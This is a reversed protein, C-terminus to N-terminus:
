CCCCCHQKSVTEKKDSGFLSVLLMYSSRSNPLFEHSMIGSLQIYYGPGPFDSHINISYLYVVRFQHTKSHNKNTRALSFIESYELSLNVKNLLYDPKKNTQKGTQKKAVRHPM